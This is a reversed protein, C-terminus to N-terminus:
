QGSAERHLEWAERLIVVIRRNCSAVREEQRKDQGRKRMTRLSRLQRSKLALHM